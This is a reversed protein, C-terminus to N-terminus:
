SVNCYTMALQLVADYSGSRMAKTSFEKAKDAQGAKKLTGSVRGIISFVNGDEGTLQVFPKSPEDDEIPDTAATHDYDDGHSNIFDEVWMISGFRIRWMALKGVEPMCMPDFVLVLDTRGDDGLVNGSLTYASSFCKGIDTIGEKRLNKAIGEVWSSLPAGAGTVVMGFQTSFDDVFEQFTKSGIEM